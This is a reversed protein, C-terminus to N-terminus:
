KDLFEKVPFVEDTPLIQSNFYLLSRARLWLGPNTNAANLWTRDGHLILNSRDISATFVPTGGETYLTNTKLHKMGLVDVHDIRADAHFAVKVLRAAVATVRKRAANGNGSVEFRIAACRYASNGSKVEAVNVGLIKMGTRQNQLVSLLYKEAQPLHGDQKVSDTLLLMERTKQSSDNSSTDTTNPLASEGVASTMPAAEATRGQHLLAFLPPLHNPTSAMWGTVYVLIFVLLLFSAAGQFRPKWRLRTKLTVPFTLSVGCIALAAGAIAVGWIAGIVM